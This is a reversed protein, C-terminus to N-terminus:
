VTGCVRGSLWDLAGRAGGWLDCSLTNPVGSRALVDLQSQGRSLARLSPSTQLQLLRMLEEDTPLTSGLTLVGVVAHALSQFVNPSSGVMDHAGSLFLAGRDGLGAAGGSGVGGTLGARCVGTASWAPSRPFVPPALGAWSLPCSRVGPRAGRSARRW